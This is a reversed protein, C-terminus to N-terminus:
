LDIHYKIIDRIKILADRLLNIEVSALAIRIAHPIHPTTAYPEATAVSIQLQHLSAVIKDARVEEPLPIWLFYSIPHHIYAIGEFIESVIKQRQQADKRLLRELKDVVGEKIWQCVISTMLAPTNWTTVRMARELLPISNTPAVIFGVRLGSAINKSFGSIYFTIEPALTVIPAPSKQVLFAYTADEIIIFHYKRALAILHQRQQLTLVWGMPNHLTPICYLARVARKKCLEELKELDPGLPTIPIPLIELHHALAALKFGPYSLADVAVVDGPKLVGLLTIAIGQQAGNTIIINEPEVTIKKNKLYQSFVTKDHLKGSHPQYRLLSEIEGSTSLRKLESRLLEAQIPLSPYNFNLDLMDTAAPNEIGHNSPLSLERVFTGRGTEGIVLGMNELEAYVRSATALSMKHETALHRHTPLQMGPLLKGIRIEHALKDVLSKYRPQVM